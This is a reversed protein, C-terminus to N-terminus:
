DSILASKEEKIHIRYPATPGDPTWFAWDERFPDEFEDTQIPSALWAAFYRDDQPPLTPATELFGSSCYSASCLSRDNQNEECGRIPLPHLATSLHNIANGEAGADVSIKKIRPKSDKIGKPRGLKKALREIAPPKSADLHYTARYWTRGIWIDRVTKISVGYMRALAAARERGKSHPSPKKRFIEQAQEDTLIARGNGKLYSQGGVEFYKLASMLCLNNQHLEGQLQQKRPINNQESGVVYRM